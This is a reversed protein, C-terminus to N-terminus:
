YKLVLLEDKDYNIVESDDTRLVYRAWLQQDEVRVGTEAELMSKIKGITTLPAIELKVIRGDPM